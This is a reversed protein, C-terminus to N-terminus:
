VWIHDGLIGSYQSVSPGNYNVDPENHEGYKAAIHESNWSFSIPEGEAHNIYIYFTTTLHRKWRFDIVLTKGGDEFSSVHSHLVHTICNGHWGHIFTFGFIKVKLTPQTANVGIPAYSFSLLSSLFSIINKM